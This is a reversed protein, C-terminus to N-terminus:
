IQCNKRRLLLWLGECRNEPLILTFTGALRIVHMSAQFILGINLKSHHYIVLAILSPSVVYMGHVGHVGPVTCDLLELGLLASIM